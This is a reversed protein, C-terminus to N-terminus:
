PRPRVIPAPATAFKRYKGLVVGLVYVVPLVLRRVLLPIELVEFERRYRRLLFAIDFLGPRGGHAKASAFLTSLYFEVNDPPRCWGTTRLEVPGANWWRHATGPPWVVLDGPEAFQEPGGPSQYGLRGRVVRVAEEQLYHVHMPAGAGPQAFGEADARLGDADRTVGVFTLQEGRGNEITYPYRMPPTPSAVTM